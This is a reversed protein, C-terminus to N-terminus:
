LTCVPVSVGTSASRLLRRFPSMRAHNWSPEDMTKLRSDLSSSVSVPELWFKPVAVKRVAAKLRMSNLM